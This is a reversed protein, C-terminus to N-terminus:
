RERGEGLFDTCVYSSRKTSVFFDAYKIAYVLARDNRDVVSSALLCMQVPRSLVTPILVCGVFLPSFFRPQFFDNRAIFIPMNSLSFVESTVYDPSTSIPTFLSRRRRMLFSHIRNRQKITTKVAM